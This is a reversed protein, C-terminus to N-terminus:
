GYTGIIRELSTAKQQLQQKVAFLPEDVWGQIETGPMLLEWKNRGLPKFECDLFFTTPDASVILTPSSMLAQQACRVAHERSDRISDVLGSMEEALSSQSQSYKEFLEEMKEPGNKHHLFAECAKLYRSVNTEIRSRTSDSLRSPAWFRRVLQLVQDTFSPLASSQSREAVRIDYNVSLQHRQMYLIPSVEININWSAADPTMQSVSTPGGSSVAQASSPGAAVYPIM